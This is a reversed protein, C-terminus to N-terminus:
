RHRSAAAQRGIMREEERQRAARRQALRIRNHQHAGLQIEPQVKAFGRQNGFLGLDDPQIHGGFINAHIVPGGNAQGAVHARHHALQHIRQFLRKAVIVPQSQHALILFLLLLGIFGQQVGILRRNM